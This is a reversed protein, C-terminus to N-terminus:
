TDRPHILSFPAYSLALPPTTFNLPPIPPHPFQRLDKQLGNWLTPSLSHSPKNSPMSQHHKKVSMECRKTSNTKM